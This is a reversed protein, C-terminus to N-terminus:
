RRAKIVKQACDTESQLDKKKLVGIESEDHELDGLNLEDEALEYAEEKNKAGQVVVRAFAKVYIIYNPM